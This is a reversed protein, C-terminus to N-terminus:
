HGSQPTSEPVAVPGLQGIRSSSWNLGGESGHDSLHIVRRPRRQAYAMELASLVLKSGLRAEMAWGVILRSFVDLVVAL